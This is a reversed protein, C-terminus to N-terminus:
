YQIKDAYGDFTWELCRVHRRKWFYRKWFRIVNGKVQSIRKRFKEISIMPLESGAVNLVHKWESNAKLLDQFGCCISCIKTDPFNSRALQRILTQYKVWNTHVFNEVFRLVFKIRTWSQYTDGICRTRSPLNSFTAKGMSPKIASSSERSLM